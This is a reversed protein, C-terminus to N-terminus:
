SFILVIDLQWKTYGVKKGIEREIYQPYTDRNQSTIKM